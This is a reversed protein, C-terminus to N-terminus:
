EKRRATALLLPGVLYLAHKTIPLRRLLDYVGILLRTLPSFLARQRAPIGPLATQIQEFRAERLLRRLRWVSLLSRQPPIGGARRVIAATWREPLWGGAWVGTQPDPGLSFRNPTALFLWGGSRLVRRAESLGQRQDKLHELASDAFVRDFCEDRFPLAEACACILPLDLGADALRKKGVVLWRLAIDVGARLEYKKAAVLLPATGCGVDLLAGRRGDGTSAEWSELWDDARAPAALLGRKYLRAHQPPVVSTNAYYFDVFGEFDFDRFYEGLKAAKARDEEFGIYPDPFVRLDPIGLLVPFERGCATCILADSRQERLGGRCHPCCIEIGRFKM